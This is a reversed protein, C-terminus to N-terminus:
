YNLEYIVHLGENPHYTWSVIVDNYVDTQRGDIARTTTIKTFLSDPLGLRSNLGKINDIAEPYNFGEKNLPNTMATISRKDESMFTYLGMEYEEGAILFLSITDYTDRADVLEDYNTVEEQERESLEDYVEEAKLIKEESEFTVKGIEDIAEVTEEIEISSTRGSLILSIYVATFISIISKIKM